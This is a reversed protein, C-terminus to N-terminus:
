SIMMTRQAITPSPKIERISGRHFEVHTGTRGMMSGYSSLESSLSVTCKKQLSLSLASAVSGGM